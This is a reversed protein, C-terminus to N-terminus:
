ELRDKISKIKKKEEIYVNSTYISTSKYLKHKTSFNEKKKKPFTKCM